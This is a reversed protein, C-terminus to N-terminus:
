PVDIVVNGRKHGTDVYRHADAMQALPYRRDIVPLFRGAAALEALVQLDEAREVVPGAVIRRRSTLGVWPASLMQALSAVVLLLRGEPALSHRCRAYPANGVLDVILDYTQGNRCFDTQTHDIVHVAGLARVMAANAARCVATVEAGFATALQIAATGVGGAAGNILVREGPGLKGRRFFDLATSGGFSLAAAQEFSLNEPKRALAATQRLCKFQAYAGMRLGDIGFVPDGVKFRDVQAGVAEIVGALEVGLVPRRPGRIGLAARALLGFGPPVRLARVRCDGSTVTTAMVRILVEDPKPTPPELEALRLVEPPGYRDHVIAKM